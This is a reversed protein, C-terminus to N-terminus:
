ADGPSDNLGPETSPATITMEGTEKRMVLGERLSSFASGLLRPGLGDLKMLADLGDADEVEPWGPPGPSAIAFRRGPRSRRWQPEEAKAPIVRQQFEERKPSTAVLFYM